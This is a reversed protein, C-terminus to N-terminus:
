TSIEGDELGVGSIRRDDRGGYSRFLVEDNKATTLGCHVNGCCRSPLAFELSPEVVLNKFVLNTAHSAMKTRQVRDSHVRCAGAIRRSSFISINADMM